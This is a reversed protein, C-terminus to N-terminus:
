NKFKTNKRGTLWLRKKAFLRYLPELFLKIFPIRLLTSTVLLNCSAYVAAFARIGVLCDGKSDVAHIRAMATNYDINNNESPSFEKSSIDVFKIKSQNNKKQLMCIERNCIPCEGDYLLKLNIRSDRETLTEIAAKETISSIKSLLCILLGWCIGIFIWTNILPYSFSLGGLSIGAVYSLPAGFFGLFFSALYNKKIIKLSHNLQLSFLPYLCIIWIPPFINRSNVYQILNTQIFLTELLIGLPISFGVLLVDQIYLATDKIKVCYLQVIIFFVAGLTAFFSQQHIGFLVCWFWGATYCLSNLVSLNM